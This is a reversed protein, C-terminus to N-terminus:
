DGDLGEQELEDVFADVDIDKLDDLTTSEDAFIHIKDM